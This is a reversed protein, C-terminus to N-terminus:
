QVIIKDVYEKNTKKDIVKIYYTGKVVCNPFIIQVIQGKDNVVVEQIHILKGNNDFIQVTYTGGQKISIGVGSKTTPNPHIKFFANNFIKKVFTVAPIPKDIETFTTIGGMMINDGKLDIKDFGQIGTISTDTKTLTITTDANAFMKVPVVRSDFGKAGVLVAQADAPLQMVFKGQNNTLVKTLNEGDNVFAYILAVQEDSVIRGKITTQLADLNKITNLSNDNRLLSAQPLQKSLKNQANTKQLFFFLSAVSAVAWQWGKKKTTETNRLARQLQDEHIRGCINNNTVKLYNLVQQDTMSTFDTVEKACSDCFKGQQTPTMKSWDENCPTAIHLHTQTKM